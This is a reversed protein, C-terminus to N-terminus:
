NEIKDGTNKFTITPVMGYEHIGCLVNYGGIIHSSSLGSLIIENAVEDPNSLIYSDDKDELYKKLYNVEKVLNEVCKKAYGAMEPDLEIDVNNLDKM